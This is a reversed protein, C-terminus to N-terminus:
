TRSERTCVECPLRPQLPDPRRASRAGQTPGPAVTMMGLEPPKDCHLWTGHLMSGPKCISGPHQQPSWSKTAGGRGLHIGRWAAEPQVRVRVPGQGLRCTCDPARSFTMGPAQFRVLRSSVSCILLAVLLVQLRDDQAQVRSGSRSGSLGALEGASPSMTLMQPRYKHRGGSLDAPSAASSFHLWSCRFGTMRHRSGSFSVGARQRSTLAPSLDLRSHFSTKWLRTVKQMPSSTDM